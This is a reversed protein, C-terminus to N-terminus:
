LWPPLRLSGTPGKHLIVEEFGSFGVTLDPKYLEKSQNKFIFLYFFLFFYVKNYPLLVGLFCVYTYGGNKIFHM